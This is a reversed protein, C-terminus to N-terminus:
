LFLRPTILQFLNIRGEIPFLAIGRLNTMEPLTFCLLATADLVDRFSVADCAKYRKRRKKHPGSFADGRKVQETTFARAVTESAKSM